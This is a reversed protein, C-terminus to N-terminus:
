CCPSSCHACPTEQTRDSFFDSLRDLGEVSNGLREALLRRLSPRGPDTSYAHVDPARLVAEASRPQAARVNLPDFPPLEIDLVRSPVRV